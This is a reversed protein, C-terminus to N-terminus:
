GRTLSTCLGEALLGASGLGERGGARGTSSTLVMAGGEEAEVPQGGQQEQWPRRPRSWKYRNGKGALFPQPGRYRQFLQWSQVQHCLTFIMRKWRTILKKNKQKTKTKIKELSTCTYLPLIPTLIYIILSKKINQLYLPIRQTRRALTTWSQFTFHCQACQALPGPQQEPPGILSGGPAQPHGAKATSGHGQGCEERSCRPAAMEGGATCTPPLPWLQHVTAGSPRSIACAQSLQVTDEFQAGRNWWGRYFTGQWQPWAMGWLQTRISRQPLWWCLLHQRGRHM